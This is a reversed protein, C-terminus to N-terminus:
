IINKNREMRQLLKVSAWFSRRMQNFYPYSPSPIRVALIFSKLPLEKVWVKCSYYSDAYFSM